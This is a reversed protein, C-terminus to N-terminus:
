LDGGENNKKKHIFLNVIYSVREQVLIESSNTNLHPNFNQEGIGDCSVYDLFGTKVKKAPHGEQVVIKLEHNGDLLEEEVQLTAIIEYGTHKLIKGLPYTKKGIKYHLGFLDSTEEFEIREEREGQYDRFTGQCDGREEKFYIGFGEVGRSAIYAWREWTSTSTKVYPPSFQPTFRLGKVEIALIDGAQVDTVIIEKEIKQESLIKSFLPGSEILVVEKEEKVIDKETSIKEEEIEWECSVLALLLGWSCFM